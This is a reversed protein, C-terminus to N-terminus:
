SSQNTTSKLEIVYKRAIEQALAPPMGSKELRQAWLTVMDEDTPTERARKRRDLLEMVVKTTGLLVSIAQLGQVVEGLGFRFEEGGDKSRTDSAGALANSIVIPGEVRVIDEEDAFHEAVIKHVLALLKEPTRDM